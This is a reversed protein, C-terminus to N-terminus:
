NLRTLSAHGNAGIIRQAKGIESPREFQAARAFIGNPTDRVRLEPGIQIVTEIWGAGTM